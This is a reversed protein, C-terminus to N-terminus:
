NKLSNGTLLYLSFLSVVLGLAAKVIREDTKVLLLLGIPIGILTFGILGGASKLHIKDWDQIVVIGAITISVLVSLPVAVNLPM